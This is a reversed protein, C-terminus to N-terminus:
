RRTLSVRYGGRAPQFLGDGALIGLRVVGLNLFVTLRPCRRPASRALPRALADTLELHGFLCDNDDGGIPELRVEFLGARTLTFEFWDRDGPYMWGTLAAPDDALPTAQPPSDNFEREDLGEIRCEDCGDLAQANGDDCDETRDRIGDGCTAAVPTLRLVYPAAATDMPDARRVALVSPTALDQLGGTSEARLVSCPQGVWRPGVLAGTETQDYAQVVVKRCGTQPEILGELRDTDALRVVFLDRDDDGTLSGQVFGPFRDFPANALWTTDNPESEDGRVPQALVGVTVTAEATRRRSIMRLQAVQNGIGRSLDSLRGSTLQESNLRFSQTFLLEGTVANRAQWSFGIPRGSRVQPADPFFSLIEPASEVPVTLLRETMGTESRTQLRLITEIDPTVTTSGVAPLDDQWPGDPDLRLRVTGSTASWNVGLPEGPEVVSRNFRVDVIQPRNADVRVNLEREADSRAGIAVLRVVFNEAAVLSLQGSPGVTRPAPASLTLRQAGSTRWRVVVTGGIGVRAPEAELMLIQPVVSPRVEVSTEESVEGGPGVATLRFTHRGEPLRIEESFVAGPAAVPIGDLDTLRLTDADRVDGLLFTPEGSDIVPPAARFLVIQPPPTRVSVSATRVLPGGRGDARLRVVFSREPRVVLDDTVSTRTPAADDFTVRVATANQVDWAVRIPDNPEAARPSVSFGLVRVPRPDALLIRTRAEVEGGPGAAVLRLDIPADVPLSREGSPPLAWPADAPGELRVDTAGVVSWAVTVTRGPVVEFPRVEFREIRPPAAPREVAPDSCGGAGVELVVLLGLLQPEVPGFRPSRALCM